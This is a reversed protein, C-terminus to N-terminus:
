KLGLEKLARAAGDLNTLNMSAYNPAFIVGKGGARYTAHVSRYVIDPTCVAQDASSRPADVGIGMFVPVRGQVGRVADECQGYVYTDPDLGAALLQDWPAEHLNLFQYMLPTLDAPSVDRFITKH